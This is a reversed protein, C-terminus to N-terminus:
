VLRWDSSSEEGFGDHKCSGIYLTNTIHHYLIEYNNWELCVIRMRSLGTTIAKGDMDDIM